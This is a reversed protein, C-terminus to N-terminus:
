HCGNSSVGSRYPRITPRTETLDQVYSEFQEFFMGIKQSPFIAFVVNDLCGCTGNPVYGLTKVFSWYNYQWIMKLEFMVIIYNM